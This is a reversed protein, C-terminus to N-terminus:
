STFNLAGMLQDQILPLYMIIKKNLKIEHPDTRLVVEVPADPAPLVTQLHIHNLPSGNLKYAYDLTQGDLGYELHVRIKGTTESYNLFIGSTRYIGGKSEIYHFLKMINADRYYGTVKHGYTNIRDCLTEVERADYLTIDKLLRGVIIDAYRRIPSTFHTYNVLDLKEHRTPACTNIPVYQAKEGAICTRLLGRGREALLNGIYANCTIMLKEIIKHTDTTGTLDAATKLMPDQGTDILQQAAEYSLTRKPYIFSLFHRTAVLELGKGRKLVVTQVAKRGNPKLSIVTKSLAEPLMHSIVPGYITTTREQVLTDLDSRKDIYYDVDAIHVYIEDHDIHFADDLDESGEPDISTIMSEETFVPRGEEVLGKVTGCGEVPKRYVENKHLLALNEVALDILPGLIRVLNMHPYKQYVTWEKFEVLAYVNQGTDRHSSAVYM